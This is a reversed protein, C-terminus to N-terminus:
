SIIIWFIFIDLNRCRIRDLAPNVKASTSAASTNMAMTMGTTMCPIEM